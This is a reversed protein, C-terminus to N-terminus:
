DKIKTDRKGEDRRTKKNKKKSFEGTHELMQQLRGLKGESLKRSDNILATFEALSDLFMYMESEFPNNQYNFM